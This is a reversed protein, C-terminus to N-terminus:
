PGSLENSLFRRSESWRQLKEWMEVFPAISIKTGQSCSNEYNVKRLQMSSLIQKDNPKAVKQLCYIQSQFIHNFVRSAKHLRLMFSRADAWHRWVDTYSICFVRDDKLWQFSKLAVCLGGFIHPWPSLYACKKNTGSCSLIIKRRVATISQKSHCSMLFRKFWKCKMKMVFFM